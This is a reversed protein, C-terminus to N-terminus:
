PWAYTGSSSASDRTTISKEPRGPSLVMDFVGARQDPFKVDVQGVLEELTEGIVRLHGQVNVVQAAFICMVLALGHELRECARQAHRDFGIRTGAAPDRGRLAFELGRGTPGATRSNV